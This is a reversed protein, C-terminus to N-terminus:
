VAPGDPHAAGADDGEPAPDKIMHKKIVPYTIFNNSYSWYSFAFFFFFFLEAIPHLLFFVFLTVAVIITALINRFIGMISFLWANKLIHILKMDFTVIMQYTYYRMFTYIALGIFSLTQAVSLATATFENIEAGGTRMFVNQLLLVYVIVDIVGMVAGQKFNSVARDKLDSLDAHEQRVWNRTIYTLGCTAPGTLIVSVVLLLIRLFSPVSVTFNYAMTFLLSSFLSGALEPDVREVVMGMIASYVMLAIPLIIISYCFNLFFFRSFKRWILEFYLFLPRKQPEDPDVGKGPKM